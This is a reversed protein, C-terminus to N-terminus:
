RARGGTCRGQLATPGPRSSVRAGTRLTHVIPVRGAPRAGGGGHPLLGAWQRGQAVWAVVVELGGSPQGGVAQRAAQGQMQVGLAGPAGALGGGQAGEGVPQGGDRADGTAGVIAVGGRRVAGQM